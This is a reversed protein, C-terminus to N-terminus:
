LEVVQYFHSAIAELCIANGAYISKTLM